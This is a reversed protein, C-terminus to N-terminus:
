PGGPPLLWGDWTYGANTLQSIERALVTPRANAMDWLNDFTLATGVYVPMKRDIVSQVWKDNKAITWNPIDLVEHGPWGKAAATDPLRGIVATTPGPGVGPPSSASPSGPM